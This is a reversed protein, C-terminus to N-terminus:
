IRTNQQHKESLFRSRFLIYYCLSYCVVSVSIVYKLEYITYFLKKHPLILGLMKLSNHVTMM